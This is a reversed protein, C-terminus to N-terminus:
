KAGSLIRLCNHSTNTSDGDNWELIATAVVFWKEPDPEYPKEESWKCLDWYAEKVLAFRKDIWFPGPSVRPNNLDGDLMTVLDGVKVTVPVSKKYPIDTADIPYRDNSM